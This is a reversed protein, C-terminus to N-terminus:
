PRIFKERSIIGSKSGSLVLFYHGSDLGTTLFSFENEGAGVAGRYLIRVLRGNMDFLEFRLEQGAPNTFKLIFRDAVPNPYLMSFESTADTESIGAATTSSLEAIWTRTTHNTLGYGGSMWVIGPENYKRQNGTYDGWRELGTLMNVYSLGAKVVTIPSYQVGDFLIAGSGPFVSSSSQQLGIICTDSGTSIGAFSINPYALDMAPDAYVSVNIVAGPGPSTIIGHYIADNGSVTDLTNAVFQMKGNEEYAGLVRADNVALKDTFPQDADVPMHYTINARAYDVLVQQGPANATDTVTVMFITDNSPSFNRNSLFTMSPGYLQSGGKAPCLNRIPGGNFQINHHLTANLTDGNYGRAKNLQWIISENFGTQWSSDNYLLNGTIFVEQQTLAMMPFDTWLTNNLPNGPLSYFNWAGTSSDTQSFGVVVHSTSDLFGNLCVLIFRDAQPDYMVKPDFEENQLGLATMITHLNFSGYVLGTNLNTSWITTNTVSCVIGNNSIAMDNDNPVFFNFSNGIFNRLLGPPTALASQELRAQQRKARYLATLSDKIQQKVSEEIGAHPRPLVRYKLSPSWTDLRPDLVLTAKKPISYVSTQGGTQAPSTLAICLLLLLLLNIKKM